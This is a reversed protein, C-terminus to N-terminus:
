QFFRGALFQHTQNRGNAKSQYLAQDAHNLIDATSQSSSERGAVGLSITAKIPQPHTSVIFDEAEIAKRIKEARVLGTELATEPMLVAYEEGGFRCVVDYERVSNQIIKAVGKIVEDGAMHGYTNNIQRLLDLDAMVVTLPRDYRNARVLENQFQQMFYTHNYIGTKQDIEVKRQLAPVRLTSYILYLPITFLLVAYPNYNWVYNLSAGMVLMTQDVMLPLLDFIGSKGFNEGRAMWIIFGVMTHNILNFAVMAIFIAAVSVWTQLEGSPNIWQYILFGIQISIVYCSTNFLSIFWPRRLWLWEALNSLLIVTLASPVGLHMLTFAYFVFSIAYHSRDTTGEVRFIQSFSAALVLVVLLFVDEIELNLLRINWTFFVGGILWTSVLYLRTLPTLNKM